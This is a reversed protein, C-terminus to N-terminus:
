FIQKRKQIHEVTAFPVLNQAAEIKNTELRLCYIAKVKKRKTTESTLVPRRNGDSANKQADFSGRTVVASISFNKTQMVGM